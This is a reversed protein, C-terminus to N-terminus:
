AICTHLWMCLLYTVCAIIGVKDHRWGHKMYYLKRGYAWSFVLRKLPGAKKLQVYWVALLATCDTGESMGIGPQWVFCERPASIGARVCVQKGKGV